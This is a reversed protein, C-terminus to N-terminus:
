NVLLVLHKSKDMTEDSWYFAIEDQSMYNNPLVDIDFSLMIKEISELRSRHVFLKDPSGLSDIKHKLSPFAEVLLQCLIQRNRERSENTLDIIRQYDM